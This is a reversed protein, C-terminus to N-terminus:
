RRRYRARPDAHAFDAFCGTKRSSPPRVLFFIGPRRSGDTCGAARRVRRRLLSAVLVLAVLRHLQAEAPARDVAGGAHLAIELEYAGDALCDAVAISMMASAYM